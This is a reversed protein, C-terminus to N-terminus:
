VAVHRRWETIRYRAIYEYVTPRSVRLLRAAGSVTGAEDLAAQVEDRTRLVAPGTIGRHASVDSPTM